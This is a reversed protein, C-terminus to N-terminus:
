RSIFIDQVYLNLMCQAMSPQSMSHVREVIDLFCAFNVSTICTDDFGHPLALGVALIAALIENKPPTNDFLSSYSANSIGNNKPSSTRSSPALSVIFRLQLCSVLVLVIGRSDLDVM